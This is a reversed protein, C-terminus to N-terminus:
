RRDGSRGIVFWVAKAPEDGITELRHPTQSDFRIADGPGLEYEDFGVTVRLRGQTVMGLERGAHRVYREGVSSAGGVDYTVELFEVDRDGPNLREWTVGSELKIVERTAVPQMHTGHSERAEPAGGGSAALTAPADPFLGDLSIGLERVISYLTSVSPRSHGNEIQSLASPSIEVRAALKRLSLGVRKREERLIAGLNDGAGHGPTAPASPATDTAPDVRTETMATFV